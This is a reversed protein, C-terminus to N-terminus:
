PRREQYIQIKTRFISKPKGKEAKTWDGEPAWEAMAYPLDGTGELYLCVVLADIEIKKAFEGIARELVLIVEQDDTYLPVKIDYRMRRAGAYDRWPNSNMQQSRFVKYPTKGTAKIGLAKKTQEDLNGTVPLKMDTQFKEIAMKTSKGWKGDLPGPNYGMQQLAVQARYIETKFSASLSFPLSIFLIFVLTIILSSIRKMTNVGKGLIILSFSLSISLSKITQFFM